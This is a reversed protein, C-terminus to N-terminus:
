GLKEKLKKFFQLDERQAPEKGPWASEEIKKADWDFKKCLTKIKEETKRMIALAEGKTIKKPDREGDQLKEVKGLLRKNIENDLFNLILEKKGQRLDEFIKLFPEQEKARFNQFTGELIEQIEFDGKATREFEQGFEKIEKLILGAQKKAKEEFFDLVEPDVPKEKKFKEEESPKEITPIEASM